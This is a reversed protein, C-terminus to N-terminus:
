DNPEKYIDYKDFPLKGFDKATKVTNVLKSSRMGKNGIFTFHEAKYSDKFLYFKKENPAYQFTESREWQFSGMGGWHKVSFRGHTIAITDFPEPNSSGGMDHSYVVHDNKALLDYGTDPRGMLILMPRKAAVTALKSEGTKHLVLILDPISDLNLDGQEEDFVEYGAPTYRDLSSSDTAVTAVPVVKAAPQHGQKCAVLLVILLLLSCATYYRLTHM